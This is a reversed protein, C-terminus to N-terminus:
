ENEINREKDTIEHFIGSMKECKGNLFEPYGIVRVRIPRGKATIMALVVDFPLGNEIADKLKDRILNRSDGEKYFKLAEDLGPAAFDDPVELIEKAVKNWISANTRLNRQWAGIRSIKSTKDLILSFQKNEEEKLKFATIDETYMLLGGIEKNRKYWPKVEWRLWLPLGDLREILAEDCRNTQGKLCDYLINSFKLKTVPSIEFISKGLFHINQLQHDETWKQSAALYLLNNDLMAIEVPAQEIFTQYREDHEKDIDAILERTSKENAYKKYCASFNSPNSFNLMVAIQNKNCRKEALYKEALEMQLNRYYSFITSDYKVKFDRKLKSESIFHKKALHAIGPFATLICSRLTEVVENLLRDTFYISGPVKEVDIDNTGWHPNNLPSVDIVQVYFGKVDGNVLDPVYTARAIKAIHSPTLIPREFIQIKGALANQIHVLKKEYLPGLVTKLSMKDILQDPSIGFWELYAENAFRCVLNRDWYALMASSHSAVNYGLEIIRIDAIDIM